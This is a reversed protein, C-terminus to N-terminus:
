LFFSDHSIIKCIYVLKSYSSPDFYSLFYRCCYNLFMRFVSSLDKIPYLLQVTQVNTHSSKRKLFSFLIIYLITRSSSGHCKNVGPLM